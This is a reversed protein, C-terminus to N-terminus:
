WLNAGGRPGTVGRGGLHHCLPLKKLIKRILILHRRLLLLGRRERRCGHGKGREQSAGTGPGESGATVPPTACWQRGRGKSLRARRPTTQSPVRGGEGPLHTRAGRPRTLTEISGEVGEGHAPQLFAGGQPWGRGQVRVTRQWPTGGGAKLVPWGHDENSWSRGPDEAGRLLGCASEGGVRRRVGARSGLLQDLLDGNQGTVEQLQPVAEGGLPEKEAEEGTLM